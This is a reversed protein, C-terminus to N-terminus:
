IDSGLDDFANEPVSVIDISDKLLSAVQLLNERQAKWKLVRTERRRMVEESWTFPNSLCATRISCPVHDSQALTSKWENYTKHLNHLATNMDSYDKALQWLRDREITSMAAEKRLAMLAEIAKEEHTKLLTFEDAPEHYARRGFLPPLTSLGWRLM